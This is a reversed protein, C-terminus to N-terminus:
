GAAQFLGQWPRPPLAPDPKPVAPAATCSRWVRSQVAAARLSSGPSGKLRKQNLCKSEQSRPQRRLTRRTPSELQCDSKCGAQLRFLLDVLSTTPDCNPPLLPQLSYFIFNGSDYIFMESLEVVLSSDFNSQQM